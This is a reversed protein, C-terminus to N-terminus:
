IGSQLKETTLAQLLGGDELKINKFAFIHVNRGREIVLLQLISM